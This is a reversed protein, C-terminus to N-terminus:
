PAHHTRGKESNLLIRADDLLYGMDVLRQEADHDDLLGLVNAKIVQAETLSRKHSFREIRWLALMYDRQSAPIGLKDLDASAGNEDIHRAVYASRVIEAAKSQLGHERKLDVLAIVLDANATHYGLRGLMEKAKAVSIAHDHYLELIDTRALQKDRNAQQHLGGEVIAKAVNAQYGLKALLELALDEGMAGHQVLTVILREAPLKHRLNRMAPIYKNKLHSERAAQDFEDQGIIGRNWLQAMQMLGPPNGETQVLWDWDQPRQGNWEAIQKGDANSLHGQIVGRLADSTSAPVYRLKEVVDIWENRVRSQRIGRQLREDNIFGRRYAELLQMLGPPEGTALVLKDFDGAVIGSRGAINRGEDENIIGRLAMLAADAPAIEVHHLLPLREVYEGPFGQRELALKVDHESLAGRRWLELLESLGPWNMGLQDMISARSGDLGSKALENVMWDHPILGARHAQVATGAPLLAHPAQSIYFQNTPALWNSIAAGIPTSLAQATGMLGVLESLEGTGESLFRLLRDLEPPTGGQGQYLRLLPALHTKKEKSVQRFFENAAEAGIKSRTHATRKLHDGMARSMLVAVRPGIKSGLRSPERDHPVGHKSSSM